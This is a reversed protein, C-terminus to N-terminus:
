YLEEEQYCNISTLSIIKSFWYKQMIRFLRGRSIKKHVADVIDHSKQVIAIKKLTYNAVCSLDLKGLLHVCIVYYEILKLQCERWVFKLTDQDSKMIKIQHFRQKIKPTAVIKGKRFRMFINILDNLFRLM